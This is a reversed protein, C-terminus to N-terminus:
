DICKNTYSSKPLNHNIVVGAVTIINVYTRALERPLQLFRLTTNMLAIGAARRCGKTM